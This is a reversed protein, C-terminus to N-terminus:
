HPFQATLSDIWFFAPYISLQRGPANWILPRVKQLGCWPQFCCSCIWSQTQKEASSPFGSPRQLVRAFPYSVHSSSVFPQGLPFLLGDYTRIFYLPLQPFIVGHPCAPEAKDHPITPYPKYFRWISYFGKSGENTINKHSNKINIVLLLM